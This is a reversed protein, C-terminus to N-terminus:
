AASDAAGQRFANVMEMAEDVLGKLKARAVAGPWPTYFMAVAAGILIGHRLGRGYKVTPKIVEEAITELAMAAAEGVSEAAEGIAEGVAEGATEAERAAEGAFRKSVAAILAANEEVFDLLRDVKDTLDAEKVAKAAHQAVEPVDKKLHEMVKEVAEGKGNKNGM